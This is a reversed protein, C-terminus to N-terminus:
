LDASGARESTFVIWQGDPSFSANYDRTDAPILPRENQGNADALFLGITSPALRAFVVRDKLAAAGTGLSVAALASVLPLAVAAAWRHKM